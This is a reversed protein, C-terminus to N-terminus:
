SNFGNNLFPNSSGLSSYPNYEDAPIGYQPKPAINKISQLISYDTAEVMPADLLMNEIDQRVNDPLTDMFNNVLDHFKVNEFATSLEVLTMVIDDNAGAGAEFKYGNSTTKKIFKTMEQLTLQHHIAIDGRKLAKQYSKVFMNKQQRLKIGIDTKVADQRHKYRMFIHSSYENRGNFMERMTKTLENGWNNAELVIGIKNEDFFEFFLIYALEALEQVSTTNSHYIGVQELKFFDYMNKVVSPFEDPTKPLLRFFNIVSYDGNLGESIDISACMYYSKVNAPHFLDPRNKIWTLNEYDMFLSRDIEPIKIHEFTEINNEIKNMISADLVMKAGSLFQLDYEQNFADLSGINKIANEKWSSIDVLSLLKIHRERETGDPQTEMKVYNLSRFYDSLPNEWEKNEIVQKIDSPVSYDYNPIHIEIKNNENNKILKIGEKKLFGDKDLEEEEFGMDKIWQYLEKKTINNKCMAYEDLRLYTVFRGSVKHWPVSMANFENKERDGDPRQADSLLKWFLNYGNPTSTIIIKSNKINSVTPFISRFYDNVVNEAVHAFEDLFLLDITFGIAATKTAAASRIKCNTDGFTIQSQNWNAVGPKLFFPLYYYIDKIKSIIEDTTSKQNAAIMINKDLEFICYYLITISSTITKGIQRSGCLISFRNDTYLDLIDNQYDRLRMNGIKGYENKIKCYNESFYQIGSQKLEQEVHDVYPEDNIDIGFKCKTYELLEEDSYSFVLGAKKVLPLNSFWYKEQRSIVFGDDFKERVKEVVETTFIFQNDAM